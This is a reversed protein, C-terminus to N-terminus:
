SSMPHLLNICIQLINLEKQTLIQQGLDQDSKRYRAAGKICIHRDTVAVNTSPRIADGLELRSNSDSKESIDYLM